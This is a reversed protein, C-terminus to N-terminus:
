SSLSGSKLLLKRVQLGIIVGAITIIIDKPIFAVLSYTFVAKVSMDGALLAWQLGGAIEIVALGLLSLLITCILNTTNSRFIPSIGCLAAMIPWSLLYGGTLGVLVEAGSRFNAFVPVGAAGILLYVITTYLALRWKLVVGLLAVAFVQITLPVGTPMPLSIQAMIALVATSMGVLVIDKTTLRNSTITHTSTDSTIM